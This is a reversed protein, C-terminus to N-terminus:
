SGLGLHHEKRVKYAEWQAKRCIRCERNGNPKVYLNPGVLEHGKVCRTKSAQFNISRAINEKATVPELHAPNVCKTNRCLHDLQLGDPIPGVTQEYMVRHAMKLKRDVSILGYLWKNRKNSFAGHWVWCGSEADVKYKSKLRDLVSPM